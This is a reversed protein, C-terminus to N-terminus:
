VQRSEDSMTAHSVLPFLGPIGADHLLREIDIGYQMLHVCFRRFEEQIVVNIPIDFQGAFQATDHVAAAFIEAMTQQPKNERL